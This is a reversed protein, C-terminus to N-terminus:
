QAARQVSPALFERGIVARAFLYNALVKPELRDMDVRGTADCPFAFARGSDFLPEFYLEYRTKRTTAKMM